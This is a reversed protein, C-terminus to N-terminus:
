YQSKSALSSWQAMLERCSDVLVDSHFEIKRQSLERTLDEYIDKDAFGIRDADDRSCGCYVADLRAWYIAGLCMPCPECTCFMVCGDLWYSDLERGAARIANIEAHATPDNDRLVTNGASAIVKGDRVICAGFPGGAGAHMNRRAQEIAVRMFAEAEDNTVTMTM